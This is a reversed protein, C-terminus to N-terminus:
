VFFIAFTYNPTTTEGKEAEGVGESCLEADGGEGAPVSAMGKEYGQGEQSSM